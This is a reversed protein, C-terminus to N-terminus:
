KKNNIDIKKFFIKSNNKDNKIGEKEINNIKKIKTRRLYVEITPCNNKNDNEFEKELERIYLNFKPKNGKNLYLDSQNNQKEENNNKTNNFDVLNRIDKFEKEFKSLRQNKPKDHYTIEQSNYKKFIFNETKNENSEKEFVCLKLDLDNRLSKVKKNENSNSSFSNDFSNESKKGIKLTFIFQNEKRNM